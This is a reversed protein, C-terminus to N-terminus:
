NMVDIGYAWSDIYTNEFGLGNMIEAVVKKCFYNERNDLEYCKQLFELFGEKDFHCELSNVGQYFGNKVFEM